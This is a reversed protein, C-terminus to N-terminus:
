TSSLNIHPSWLLYKSVEPISSYEYMDYADDPEIYRIILRETEIPLSSQILKRIKRETM